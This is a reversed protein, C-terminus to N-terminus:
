VTELYRHVLNVASAGEGVAAAVRKMSGLRVDGAAFVGPLSTELLEPPRRLTWADPALLTIEPGTLLFGHADRAVTDPLWDTRPQAGIFIYLWSAGVTEEAGSGRHRLTLQELHDTGAGGVVETEFRVEINDAAKIRDVLYQSMSAELSTGRVVMVVRKAYRALHLTAQGASNAAGVVYVDDGETTRAESATAGYFVGRGTLDALGPAELMRYSVGTSLIVARTEIETGDELVVAHISGRTELAVVDRALVMEAGLRRAQTVARHSLDTGSLGNPFGLYNEIRSSQGAQGGPAAREVVATQLGESAGYVAAALGAPGAGLIVLDYLTALPRTQLGLAEAIELLTPGHLVRGDPLLVLPWRPTAGAGGSADAPAAGVRSVLREAEPDRDIELWQYPVHNRALFTRAEHSQESWRHGVVRVGAYRSANTAEWAALLDDLVPYLREEPPSWPKMLYHDLGIENIATIAADTDAYATLLVLKADPAPGRAQRLLEIGTMEPMRYDSIILAVPQDRKALEDLVGLAEAGSSARVIQYQAAYRERLDRAISASVAPDDDVSLIIARAM